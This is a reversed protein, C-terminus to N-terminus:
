MPQMIAMCYKLTEISKNQCESGYETYMKGLSFDILVQLNDERCIAEAMAPGEYIYPVMSAIESILSLM